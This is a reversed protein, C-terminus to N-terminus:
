LTHILPFLIIFLFLRIISSLTPLLVLRAGTAAGATATALSPKRDPHFHHPKVVHEDEEVVVASESHHGHGSAIPPVTRGLHITTLPSNVLTRFTPDTPNLWCLGTCILM